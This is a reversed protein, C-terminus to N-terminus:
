ASKESELLRVKELTEQIKSETRSEDESPKAPINPASAFQSYTHFLTETKSLILKSKEGLRRQSYVQTELTRAQQRLQAWGTGTSSAMKLTTHRAFSVPRWHYVQEQEQEPEDVYSSRLGLRGPSEVHDLRLISIFEGRGKIPEVVRRVLRIEGM